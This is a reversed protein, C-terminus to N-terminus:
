LSTGSIIILRGTGVKKCVVPPGAIGLVWQGARSPPNYLFPPINGSSMVFAGPTPPGVEFFIGVNKCPRPQTIMGGFPVFQAHAQSSAVLLVALIMIFYVRPM